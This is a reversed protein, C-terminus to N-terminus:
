QMIFETINVERLFIKKKWYLEKLKTTINDVLKERNGQIESESMSGVEQIVISKTKAIIKTMYAGDTKIKENSVDSAPLAEILSPHVRYELSLKMVVYKTSNLPNTTIRETEYFDRDEEGVLFEQEQVNIDSMDPMEGMEGMIDGTESTQETTATDAGETSPETLVFKYILIFIVAQVVVVGLIIFIVVPLSFGTKEGAKKKKADVKEPEQLDQNEAM